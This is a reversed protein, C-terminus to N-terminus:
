SFFCFKGCKEPMLDQYVMGLAYLLIYHNTKNLLLTGEPKGKQRKRRDPERRGTSSVAANNQMM